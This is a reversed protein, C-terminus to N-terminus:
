ARLAIVNEGSAAAKAIEGQRVIWASIAELAPLLSAPDPNNAYHKGHVDSAKHNELQRSTDGDIGVIKAVDEFTRRMDHNSLHLGAVESVKEWMARPDKMHGSDGRVAPFVYEKGKTTREAYRRTLIQHLAKTIPFTMANHNKAIDGPIHFTPLDGDLKVRDWTLSSAEGIRCGTLILFMVLDAAVSTSRRNREPDAYQQLLLWTEGLKDKPIRGDRAKEPNWKAMGGQKFMQSVPNVPLIPYTGDSTANKERAWNLLARLNRFAQNTQVPATKSLERFRKICAERNIEAVPKDAWEAFTVVVCKRLDAKSTPRLPGHKTRKHEIYDEMVERLTETQAVKKRKEDQPNIGDGMDLLMKLARKRAEDCSLMPHQGLTFRRTKGNVPRQVIYSRVGNSTVRVGFGKTAGEEWYFEQGKTASPVPLNEVALKTLKKITAM